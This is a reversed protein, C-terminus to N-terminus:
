TSSRTFHYFSHLYHCLIHVVVAVELRSLTAPLSATLSPIYLSLPSLRTLTLPHPSPRPLRSFRAPGPVLLCHDPVPRALGTPASASSANGRDLCGRQPRVACCVAGAPRRPRAVPFCFQSRQCDLSRKRNGIGHGKIIGQVIFELANASDKGLGKATASGARPRGRVRSVQIRLVMRGLVATERVKSTLGAV